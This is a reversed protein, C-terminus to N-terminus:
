FVGAAVLIAFGLIVLIIFLLIGIAVPVGKEYVAPFARKNTLSKKHDDV